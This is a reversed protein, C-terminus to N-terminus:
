AREGSGRAARRICWMAEVRPRSALVEVRFDGASLRSLVTTKWAPKFAPKQGASAEEPGTQGPITGSRVCQRAPRWIDALRGEVNRWFQCFAPLSQENVGEALDPLIPSYHIAAFFEEEGAYRRTSAPAGSVLSRGTPFQLPQSTSHLLGIFAITSPHLYSHIGFEPVKVKVSGKVPSIFRVRKFSSTTMPLM